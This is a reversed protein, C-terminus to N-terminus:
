IHWPVDSASSLNLFDTLAVAALISSFMCCYEGLMGIELYCM